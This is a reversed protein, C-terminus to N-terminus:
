HSGGFDKLIFDCAELFNAAVFNPNKNQKHLATLQDGYIESILLISKVGANLGCLVDAERDGIMYSRTLDLDMEEAAKFIMLPSPKRCESEEESNYAPHYPCFFFRDIEAGDQKLLFDIKRNVNEVDEITMLGKAVGAQNSIVIIKFGFDLKLKRIGESVGDLIKVDDPNKVYGADYNITGDRDLFLAHNLM